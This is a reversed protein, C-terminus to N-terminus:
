ATVGTSGATVIALAFPVPGLAAVLPRVVMVFSEPWWATGVGGLDIVQRASWGLDALWATVEVKARGDDGCLFTSAAALPDVMMSPPGLTNLAKVVRTAPLAEQLRAALSGGPHRLGSAFGDPGTDVANGIDVLTRGALAERLPALVDVAVAGPLANVVIPAAAAATAIDTVEAPLDRARQPSRTGVVVRHGAAALRVALAEAVAGSGIISTNHM